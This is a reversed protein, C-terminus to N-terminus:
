VERCPLQCFELDRRREEELVKTDKSLTEVMVGKDWEVAGFETTSM